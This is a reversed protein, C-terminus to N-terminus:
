KNYIRIKSMGILLEFFTSKFEKEMGCPCNIVM